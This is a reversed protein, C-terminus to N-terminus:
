LFIHILVIAFFVFAMVYHFKRRKGTAKRRRLLGSFLLIALLVFGLYGSTLKMNYLNGWYANIMIGAHFLILGTATMAIPIHYKMMRKSIKALKVKVQRIKSKRIMLFVFYMNLNILFLIFAMQALLKGLLVNNSEYGQIQSWVLIILVTLVNVTLWKWIM